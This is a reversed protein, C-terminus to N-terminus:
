IKCHLVRSYNRIRREKKEIMSTASSSGVRGLLAFAIEGFIPSM